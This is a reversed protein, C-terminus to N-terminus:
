KGKMKKVEEPKKEPQNDAWKEREPTCVHSLQQVNVKAMGCHICANLHNYEHAKSPKGRLAM